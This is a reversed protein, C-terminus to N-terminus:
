ELLEDLDLERLLQTDKNHKRQEEQRQIMLEQYVETSMHRKEDLSYRKTCQREKLLKRNVDKNKEISVKIADQRYRDYSCFQEIFATIVNFNFETEFESTLPQMRKRNRADWSMSHEEYISIAVDAQESNEFNFVKYAQLNDTIMQTVADIYKPTINVEDTDYNKTTDQQERLCKLNLERFIPTKLSVEFRTKDETLDNYKDRKRHKHLKNYLCANKRQKYISAPRSEIYYRNEEAESRLNRTSNSKSTRIVMVDDMHCDLDLAVDITTLLTRHGKLNLYKIIKLMMNYRQIDVEDNYTKLGHFLVKTYRYSNQNSFSGTGVIHFSFLYRGLSKSGVIEKTATTNKYTEKTTELDNDTKIFECIDDYAKYNKITIAVSDIHTSYM